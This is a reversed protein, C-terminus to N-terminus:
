SLRFRGVINVLHANVESISNAQELAQQGNGDLEGVIDNIANMNRSLELTVSSQEEAATAIQASLDNIETVLSTMIDLSQSVEGAGEATQACKDKTSEMSIVVSQSRKLLSELAAEIEGTSDKTRSALTRVEDAVVAFGRGQEGARAAEIAANLALLNTQEAIGGIVELITNISETEEAMSNVNESAVSVDQVLEQVNVQAQTVTSKSEAGADNAKHTLQATNSADSAMADATANMEEIATVIQETEQVHNQLISSSRQSQEKMSGVNGNLQQCAESIDLMMTQLNAIFRNVGESIQGLDDQTTVEIRQTLDGNGESLGLITKKLTLIPRYLINMIVMAISVSLLTVVVAVIIAAQRASALASLAVSKEIGVIFYWTKDSVKIDHSFFLMDVGHGEGEYHASGKGIVHNAVTDLWPTQNTKSGAEITPSSSALITKGQNVIMATAGPITNAGKVITNLFSLPMDVSIMGNSTKRVVSVWYVQGDSGLYPDSIVATNHKQALQYWGRTTVDGEYKHKPWTKNSQSWYADGNQFAVVASSLNAAGAIVHTLNILEEASGSIPQENFHQGLKNLGEVKENLQATIKRAQEKVYRENSTTILDLLTNEEKAYAIYSSVSVSTVVLIVIFLLLLPKFGLNTLKLPENM